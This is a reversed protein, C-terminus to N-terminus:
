EHPFINYFFITSLYADYYWVVFYLKFDDYLFLLFSPLCGWTVIINNKRWSQLLVWHCLSLKYFFIFTSTTYEKGAYLGEQASHNQTDPLLKSPANSKLMLYM